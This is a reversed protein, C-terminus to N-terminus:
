LGSPDAAWYEAQTIERVAGSMLLDPLVEAVAPYDCWEALVCLLCNNDGGRWADSAPLFCTATGKDNPLGWAANLHHRVQEYVAEPASFYRYTM